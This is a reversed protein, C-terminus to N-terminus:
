DDGAFLSQSQQPKTAPKAPEPKPEPTPKPAPKPEPAAEPEQAPADAPQDAPHEANFARAAELLEDKTKPHWRNFFLSATGATLSDHGMAALEAKIFRSAELKEPDTLSEPTLPHSKPAEIQTPSDTAEVSSELEEPTYCVVGFTAEPAYRRQGRSSARAFLMDEPYKYWNSDAKLLGAHKAQEITFTSEGRRKGDPGYWTMTCSGSIPMGNDNRVVPEEAIEYRYGVAQARGRLLAASLSPSGKIIHINQVATMPQLGMERGTLIITLAQACAQRADGQTQYLRSHAVSEATARIMNFEEPSPPTVALFGDARELAVPGPQEIRAVSTTTEM